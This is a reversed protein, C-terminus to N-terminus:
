RANSFWQENAMDMMEGYSRLVLYPHTSSPTAFCVTLNSNRYRLQYNVFNYGYYSLTNLDVVMNRTLPESGSNATVEEINFVEAGTPITDSEYCAARAITCYYEQKDAPCMALKSQDNGFYPLILATCNQAKLGLGAMLLLLTVIVRKM